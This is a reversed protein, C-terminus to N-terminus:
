EYGNAGRRASRLWRGTASASTEQPRDNADFAKYKKRDTQVYRGLRERGLYVSHELLEFEPQKGHPITDPRCLKKKAPAKKVAVGPRRRPRKWSHRVPLTLVDRSGIVRVNQPCRPKPICFYQRVRCSEFTHGKGESPLARDLQAVPADRNM